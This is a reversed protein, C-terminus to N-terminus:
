VEKGLIILAGLLLCFGFGGIAVQWELSTPRYHSSEEFLSFPLPMTPIHQYRRILEAKELFVAGLVLVGSLGLIFFRTEPLFERAILLLLVILHLFVMLFSSNKEKITSSILALKNGLLPMLSVLTLCLFIRGISVDTIGLGLVLLSVLAMGSWLSEALTTLGLFPQSHFGAEVRSLFFLTHVMVFGLASFLGIFPWIVGGLGSLGTLYVINVLICLFLMYFDWTMPSFWSKGFIIKIARFPHGLDAGLLIGGSILCSLSVAGGIYVFNELQIINFLIALSVFLLMGSGLASLFFFCQVYLGWNYRDNLGTASLGTRWQRILATVGIVTLLVAMTVVSWFM